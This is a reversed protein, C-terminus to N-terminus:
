DVEPRHVNLIVIKNELAICVQANQPSSVLGRLESEFSMSGLIKPSFADWMKLVGSDHLSAVVNGLHQALYACATILGDGSFMIKKLELRHGDWIRLSGDTHGTVVSIGDHSFSCCKANEGKPVKQKITHGEFTDHLRLGGLRDCCLLRYHSVTENNANRKFSFADCCESLPTNSNDTKRRTMNSGGLDWVQVEGKKSLFMIRDDDIYKFFTQHGSPHEMTWQHKLNCNYVEFNDKTQILVNEGTPSLAFANAHTVTANGVLLRGSSAEYMSMGNKSLVYVHKGDVSFSIAQVGRDIMMETSSSELSHCMYVTDYNRLLVRETDVEKVYDWKTARSVPVIRTTFPLGSCSIHQSDGCVYLRGGDSSVGLSRHASGLHLHTTVSSDFAEPKLECITLSQKKSSNVVVFQSNGEVGALCDITFPQEDNFANHQSKFDPSALEWVSVGRNFSGSIVFQGCASITCCTISKTVESLRRLLNGTDLDWVLLDATLNTQRTVLRKRNPSVCSDIFTYNNEPFLQISKGDFSMAYDFRGHIVAHHQPVIM